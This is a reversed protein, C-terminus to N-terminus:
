DKSKSFLSLVFVIFEVIFDLITKKKQVVVEIKDESQVTIMETTKQELQQEVVVIESSSTDVTQKSEDIKKETIRKSRLELANKPLTVHWHRELVPRIKDYRSPYIKVDPGWTLEAILGVTWEETGFEANVKTLYQKYMKTAVLPINSSFSVFAAKAVSTWPEPGHRDLIDRKSEPLVFSSVRSKLFDYQVRRAREDNWVNAIGAAWTKAHIKQFSTWSNKLGTGKFYLERQMNTSNVIGRDDLFVFRWGHKDTKKFTANSSKLADSLPGTVAESGLKEAVEGLLRTSLMFRDCLQCASISIICSDYANILDYCGGETISVVNLVLDWFDPNVPLDFKWRGKFYPGEYSAYSGWSISDVSVPSVM